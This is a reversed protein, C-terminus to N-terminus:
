NIQYLIISNKDGKTVFELDRDSDINDMMIASNGYVPFNPIVAANSDFLYVKHTQLDTLAVYIKDQLYFLKPKTYIGYDLEHTNGKITLKNESLTVLTKSSSEIHSQPSLNLNQSISNGKTDISVLKGDTSTTTFKNNYVYISENSYSTTTKANVRTNGTRDLIYMKSQTKFVIYDKSGIRFHQPQNLIINNASKFNFGNVNKLNKDYMLLTRGQTILLRYNKNNGYDFVSLPQTIADNFKGPFPSVDHGNRDIVYLRHPTTFALQLKGNKYIDIQEVLGLVPGDLQKKWLIKGSNSILYLNNKIDQVIIEKQRTIHNSVFQPDNLLDSDLKINLEETISNQAAKIKAKKIVGNIHAFNTDYIFQLASIKYKDLSVTNYEEFNNNLVAQLNAPNLVLLISSADSLYAKVDKFYVQESLTTKNQYDTIIIHLMELDDAFVFFNDLICYKTAKNFSVLPSFSANFIDPDSFSFIEVQRFADIVNQEGILVDETAIVDLSNLVIARNEADYIVGVESIDDFLNSMNKLTGVQTFKVLNSHFIKYNNFTFSLFGDANDPTVNQIQNEQPITNKFVNIFSKTSDSAQTIGNILTTEQSIDADVAIYNTFTKLPLQEDPFLSKIASNEDCKLIISVLKDNNTTRYIKGLEVNSNTYHFARQVLNLSSSTFFTSDIIASFFTYNNLTSKIISYDDYKLTEEIYNRLSDRQFLDKSYKTILSYELSDAHDSSFCILIQETPKLLSVNKLQRDLNKYAKTNSLSQLFDNNDISSKLSELNSTKIIISTKEPVFHILKTHNTKENSCALIFLLLLSFCFFRM